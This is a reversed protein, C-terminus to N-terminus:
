LKLLVMKRSQSYNDITLKCFYIGNEINTANWTESYIGADKIGNSITSIEQGMSDFVNLRVQSKNNVRYEITSKSKFPNPFSTFLQIANISKASATKEVSFKIMVLGYAPIKISDIIGSFKESLIAIKPNIGPQNYANPDPNAITWKEYGEKQIAGNLHPKFYVDSSLANVVSITLSDKAHTYAASVNLQSTSGIVVLPIEGFHNRYLVLPLATAELASTTATTKICGLVNITQAYNAM